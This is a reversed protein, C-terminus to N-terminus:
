NAVKKNLLQIPQERKEVINKDIVIKELITM